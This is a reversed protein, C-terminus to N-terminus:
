IAMMYLNRLLRNFSPFIKACTILNNNNFSLVGGQSEALYAGKTLSFVHEEIERRAKAQRQQIVNLEQQLYNEAEDEEKSVDDLRNLSADAANSREQAAELKAQICAKETNWASRDDEYEVTNQKIAANTADIALRADEIATQCELIKQNHDASVKERAALLDRHSAELKVVTERELHLEASFENLEKSRNTEFTLAAEASVTLLKAQGRNQSSTEDNKLISEQMHQIERQLADNSDGFGLIHAQIANIESEINAVNFNGQEDLSIAPVVLNAKIRDLELAKLELEKSFAESKKAFSAVNAKGTAVKSSLEAAQTIHHKKESATQDAVAKCRTRTSEEMNQAALLDKEAEAIRARINAMENMDQQASAVEQQIATRLSEESRIEAKMAAESSALKAKAEIKLREVAALKNEVQIFISDIKRLCGANIRAAVLGLKLTKEFGRVDGGAKDTVLRRTGLSRTGTSLLDRSQRLQARLEGNSYKLTELKSELTAHLELRQEKTARAAVLKQQADRQQMELVHLDALVTTRFLTM